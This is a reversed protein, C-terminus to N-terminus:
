TSMIHLHYIENIKLRSYAISVNASNRSFIPFHEADFLNFVIIENNVPCEISIMSLSVDSTVLASAKEVQKMITFNCRIFSIDGMSTVLLGSIAREQEVPGFFMSDINHARNGRGIYLSGGMANASNNDFISEFIEIHVLVHPVDCDNAFIAGGSGHINYHLASSKNKVFDHTHLIIISEDKIQYDTVFLPNVYSFITERNLVAPVKFPIVGAHNNRFVSDQISLRLKININLFLAGGHQIVENGVFSYNRILINDPEVKWYNRTEIFSIGIGGMNEKFVTNLIVIKPFYAHCQKQQERTCMDFASVFPLHLTEISLAANRVKVTTITERDNAVLVQLLDSFKLLSFECDEVLVFISRASHLKLGGQVIQGNAHGQFISSQVYACLQDFAYLYIIRDAIFSHTIHVKLDKCIGLIANTQVMTVPIFKQSDEPNYSFTVNDLILSIYNCHFRNWTYSEGDSYDFFISTPIQILVEFRLTSEEKYMTFIDPGTLYIKSKNFFCNVLRMESNWIIFSGDMFQVDEFYFTGNTLLFMIKDKIVVRKRPVTHELVVESSCVLISSEPGYSTLSVNGYLTTNTCHEFVNNGGITTILKIDLPQAHPFYELLYALKSCPSTINGCDRSNKGDNSVYLTKARAPYCVSNMGILLLVHIVMAPLIEYM